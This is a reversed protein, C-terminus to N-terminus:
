LRVFSLFISAVMPVLGILFTQMTFAGAAESMGRTQEARQKLMDPNMTEIARTMGDGRSRTSMGAIGAIALVVVSAMFLGNTYSIPTLAGGVLCLLAVGGFIALEIVVFRQLFQPLIRTSQQSEMNDRKRNM